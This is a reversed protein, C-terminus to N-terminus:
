TRLQVLGRAWWAITLLSFIYSVSSFYSLFSHWVFSFFPSPIFFLFFMLFLFYFPSSSLSSRIGKRKFPFIYSSLPRLFHPIYLSSPHMSTSILHHRCALLYILFSLLIHYFSSSASISRLVFAPFRTPAFTTLHPAQKWRVTIRGSFQLYGMVSVTENLTFPLLITNWSLAFCQHKSLAGVKAKYHSGLGCNCGLGVCM